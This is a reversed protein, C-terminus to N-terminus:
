KRDLTSMELNIASSSVNLGSMKECLESMKRFTLWSNRGKKESMERGAEAQYRLSSCSFPEPGSLDGGLHNMAWTKNVFPM